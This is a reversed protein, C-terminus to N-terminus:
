PCYKSLFVTTLCLVQSTDQNRTKRVSHHGPRIDTFQLLTGTLSNDACHQHVVKGAVHKYSLYYQQVAVLTSVLVAKGVLASGKLVAKGVLTSDKLVAKGVKGVLTSDKLVLGQEQGNAALIWM